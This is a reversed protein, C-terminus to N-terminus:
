FPRFKAKRYNSAQRGAYLNSTQTSIGITTAGVKTRGASIESSIALRRFIDISKTMQHDM